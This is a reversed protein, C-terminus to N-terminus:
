RGGRGRRAGGQAHEGLGCVVDAYAHPTSRGRIRTDRQCKRNASAEVTARRKTANRMATVISEAADQRQREGIDMRAVGGGGNGGRACERCRM